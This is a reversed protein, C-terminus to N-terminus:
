AATQEDAIPLLECTIAERKPVALEYEDLQTLIELFPERAKKTEGCMKRILRIYEAAIRRFFEEDALTLAYNEYKFKEKITTKVRKLIRWEIRMFDAKDYVVISRNSGKPSAAYYVNGNKEGDEEEYNEQLYMSPPRTFNDTYFGISEDIVFNATTDIRSIYFRDIPIQVLGTVIMLAHEAEEVEALQLNNGHLLKAPEFSISFNMPHFTFRIKAKRYMVSAAEVYRRCSSITNVELRMGQVVEIQERVHNYLGGEKIHIRVTDYGVRLISELGKDSYSTTLNNDAEMM